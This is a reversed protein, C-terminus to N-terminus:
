VAFSSKRFGGVESVSVLLSRRSVTEVTESVETWGELSERSLREAYRVSSVRAGLFPCNPCGDRLAAEADVGDDIDVGEVSERM